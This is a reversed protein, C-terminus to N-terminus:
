ILGKERMIYTCNKKLKSIKNVRWNGGCFHVNIFEESFWFCIFNGSFDSLGAHELQYIVPMMCKTLFLRNAVTKLESIYFCMVTFLIRYEVYLMDYAVYKVM